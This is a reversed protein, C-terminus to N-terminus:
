GRRVAILELNLMELQALVGHLAAMDHPIGSLVTEGRDTRASFGPFAGLLTESLVGRLRIEYGTETAPEDMALDHDHVPHACM